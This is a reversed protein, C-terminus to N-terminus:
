EMYTPNLGNELDIDVGDFGYETMLAYVTNAFLQAASGDAVRIAGKEGGVSLIVKKGKAHLAAIDSKFQADTYGGLATALGPDVGFVVEGPTATAEGFAVAILDYEDPVASLKLEVAPNVFNHWYGTLFHRPLTGSQCGATT